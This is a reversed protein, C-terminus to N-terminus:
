TPTPGDKTVRPPIDTMDVPMSVVMGDYQESAIKEAHWEDKAWVRVMLELTVSFERLPEEEPLGSIDAKLFPGEEARLSVLGMPKLIPPLSAMHPDAEILNTMNATGWFHQGCGYTLGRRIPNDCGYVVCKEDHAM